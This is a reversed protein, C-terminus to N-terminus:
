VPTGQHWDGDGAGPAIVLADHGGRRLHELVRLVSNTVGNVTPLFCESVIAVRM